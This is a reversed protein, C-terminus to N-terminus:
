PTVCAKGGCKITKTSENYMPIMNLQMKHAPPTTHVKSKIKFYELVCCYNFSCGVTRMTCNFTFLIHFVRGFYFYIREDNGKLSSKVRMM